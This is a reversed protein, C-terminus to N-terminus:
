FIQHMIENSQINDQICFLPSFIAFRFTGRGRQRRRKKHFITLFTRQCPVFLELSSTLWGRLSITVMPFSPEYRILAPRSPSSFFIASRNRPLAHYERTPTFLLRHSFSSSPRYRQQRRRILKPARFPSFRLTGVGYLRACQCVRTRKSTYSHVFIFTHTRKTHAHNHM